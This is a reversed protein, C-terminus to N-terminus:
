CYFEPFVYAHKGNLPELDLHVDHSLHWTSEVDDLFTKLVNQREASRFQEEFPKGTGSGTPTYAITALGM